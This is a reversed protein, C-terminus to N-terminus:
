AGGLNFCAVLETAEDVFAGRHRAIEATLDIENYLIATYGRPIQLSSVTNDIVGGKLLDNRNYQGGDIDDPVWYFRASAGYCHEAKFLTVAGMESVSYPGIKMSSTANAWWDFTDFWVNRAHGAGSSLKTHTCQGGKGRCFNYFTNKGCYYSQMRNNFGIDKM